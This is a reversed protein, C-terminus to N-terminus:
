AYVYRFFVKEGVEGIRNNEMIVLWSREVRSIKTNELGSNCRIMERIPVKRGGGNARSGNAPQRLLSSSPAREARFLAKMSPDMAEGDDHHDDDVFMLDDMSFMGDQIISANNRIEDM